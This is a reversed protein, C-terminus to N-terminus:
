NEEEIPEPETELEPNPNALVGIQHNIVHHAAANNSQSQSHQHHTYKGNSERRLNPYM